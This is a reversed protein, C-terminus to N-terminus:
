LCFASHQLHDAGVDPLPVVHQVQWGLDVAWLRLARVSHLVHHVGVLTCNHSSAAFYVGHKLGDALDVLIYQLDTKHETWRGLTYANASKADQLDNWSYHPGTINSNTPVGQSPSEVADIHNTGCIPHM